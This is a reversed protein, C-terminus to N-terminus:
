VGASRRAKRKDSSDLILALISFAFFALIGAIAVNARKKPSVPNLSVTPKKVLETHDVHRKREELLDADRRLGIIEQNIRDIQTRVGLIAQGKEHLSLRLDEQTNKEESLSEELTNYYRFNQQVENSYLLLGLAEIGDRKEALLTRLQKEIEEIRTKVGKMEEVLGRSREASINLKNGAAISEQRAKEIEIELTRIDFGKIKIDNEKSSIQTTIGKLEVEIKRDLDNKVLQLLADLIARGEATDGTRLSVRVLKTDELSAATIEPMTRPDLKLGAAVLPNYSGENIQGAIQKPDMAVIEQFQGQESQVFFKSPQILADVEWKPPILFSVIGAALAFLATPVVILWRRKWLIELYAFLDPDNERQAM